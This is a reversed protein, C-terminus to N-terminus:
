KKIKNSKEDTEATKLKAEAEKKLDVITCHEIVSKLTAKANFYDKQVIFLDALLIYAKTIWRESSGANEITQIAQKEAEAFASDLFYNNAIQYSAEAGISSKTLASSRQFFEASSNFEKKEQNAYGLMLFCLASDEKNIPHFVLLKKADSISLTYQSLQYYSKVIGRQAELQVAPNQSLGALKQYCRLAAEFEKLETFYLKSATLLSKEQYTSVGKLAIMEYTEAAEKFSKSKLLVDAKLASVNTIYIGQPFQQVYGNLTTLVSSSPDVAYANQIYRYMLSDKELETISKGASELFLQYDNIRGNEVYLLKANELAEATQPSSPFDKILIKYQRISEDANDLNYYAIGLKLIALPKLEDEEDVLTVIKKIVPIAKEFEEEAMYTDALEMYMLNIYPSNEFAQVAEKLLSIKGAPSKIGEILSSQFTAYDTGFGKSTLIRDYLSKAKSYNKDMFYCDAARLVAERVKVESFDKDILFVKEFYPIAKKFDEMEYFCYGLNYYANLENADGSTTSPNSLYQQLFKASSGFDNKRFAIEGMWFLSLRYYSSQTHANLLKFMNESADYQVDYMLELARGYYIRPIINKVVPNSLDVKGLMDIAAKFNNTKTYYQLLIEKVEQTYKSNPYNDLFGTLSNFGQDEFGLEFSLKADLYTAIEKKDASLNSSTCYQFSTRANSKDHLQLYSLGL